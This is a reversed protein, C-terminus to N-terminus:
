TLVQKVLRIKQRWVYENEEVLEIKGQRILEDIRHILWGSQPSYLYKYYLGLAKDITIPENDPISKLLWSDYFEEPVSVLRGDIVARLPANEKRLKEWVKAHMVIEEKSLLRTSKAAEKIAEQSMQNWSFVHKRKGDIVAINPLRVASFEQDYKKLLECLQYFGCLEESYESYWIRLRKGEDLYKKLSFWNRYLVSNKLLTAEDYEDDHCFGITMRGALCRRYKSDIRKQIDGINLVGELNFMISQDRKVDM